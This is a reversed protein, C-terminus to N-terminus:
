LRPVSPGQVGTNLSVAISKMTTLKREERRERGGKRGEKSHNLGLVKNISPM